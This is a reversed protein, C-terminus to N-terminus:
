LNVIYTYKEKIPPFLKDPNGGNAEYENRLEEIRDLITERSEGTVEMVDDVTFYEHEGTFEALVMKVGIYAAKVTMGCDVGSQLLKKYEERTKYQGYNTCLNDLATKMTMREM